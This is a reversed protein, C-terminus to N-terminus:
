FHVCIHKSAGPPHVRRCRPVHGTQAIIRWSSLLPPRPRLRLSFLFSFHFSKDFLLVHIKNYNPLIMGPFVWARAWFEMWSCMAATWYAPSHNLLFSDPRLSEPNTLAPLSFFSSNPLQDVSTSAFRDGPIRQLPFTHVHLRLPLLGAHSPRRIRGTGPLHGLRQGARPCIIPNLVPFSHSTKSSIGDM